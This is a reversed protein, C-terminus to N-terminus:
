CGKSANSSSILGNRMSYCKILYMCDPSYHCNFQGEFGILDHFIMVHIYVYHFSITLPWFREAAVHIDMHQLTLM